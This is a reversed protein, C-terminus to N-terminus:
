QLQAALRTAMQRQYVRRKNEFVRELSAAPVAATNKIGALAPLRRPALGAPLNREARLASRQLVATFDPLLTKQAFLPSTGILCVLLCSFGQKM